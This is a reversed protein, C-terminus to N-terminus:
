FFYVSEATRRLLWERDAPTLFDARDRILQFSAQLSHGNQIQYPCDSAWMLRQPGFTEVLRRITPLLDDYPPAKKGLAYFASVKVSVQRHKALGCLNRLDSERIMGDAGIRAFHDIVVPTEPYKACMRDVDPLDSPNILCCMAQRTLAGTRWMDHMGEDALWNPGLKMPTIRFGTAGHLLLKRMAEAAGPKRSDVMAVVRFRDPYRHHTDTLYRNDFGHYVSHQILVVRRIGLPDGIQFYDAETFRPPNLDAKTQGAELPYQDVEAPWIHSHADIWNMSEEAGKVVSIGALSAAVGAELFRRRNVFPM